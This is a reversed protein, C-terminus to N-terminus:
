MSDLQDLLGELNVHGAVVVGDRTAEWMSLRASIPRHIIASGEHQDIWEKMRKVQDVYGEVENM